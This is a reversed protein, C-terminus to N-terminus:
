FHEPDLGVDRCVQDALRRFTSNHHGHEVTPLRGMMDQKLHVMEHALVRLALSLTRCRTSLVITRREGGDTGYFGWADGTNEVGFKIRDAAPLGWRRFPKQERLCIYLARVQKPTM